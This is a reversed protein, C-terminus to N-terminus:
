EDRGNRLIWLGDGIRRSASGIDDWTVVYERWGAVPDADRLTVSTDTSHRIRALHFLGQSCSELVGIDFGIGVVGNAAHTQRVEDPYMEWPITNLPRHHFSIDCHHRDLFAPIAVVAEGLTLGAEGVQEVVPLCWPNPDCQAVRVGLQSAIQPLAFSVNTLHTLADWLFVAVCSRPSMQQSAPHSYPPTM